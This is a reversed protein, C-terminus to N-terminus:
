LYDLKLKDAPIKETQEMFSKGKIRIVKECNECIKLRRGTMHAPAYCEEVWHSKSHKCTKQLKKIDKECKERIQKATKM